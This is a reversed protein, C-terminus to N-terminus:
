RTQSLRLVPKSAAPRSDSRKAVERWFARVKAPVLNPRFMGVLGWFMLPALAIAILKIEAGVPMLSSGAFLWQLFYFVGFAALLSGRLWLWGIALAVVWGILTAM